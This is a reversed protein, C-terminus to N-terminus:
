IDPLFSLWTTLLPGIVKHSLDHATSDAKSNGGNSAQAAKKVEAKSSKKKGM